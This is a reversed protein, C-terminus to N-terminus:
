AASYLSIRFWIFLDKKFFYQKKKFRNKMFNKKMRNGYGRMIENELFILHYMEMTILLVNFNCSMLKRKAILSFKEEAM